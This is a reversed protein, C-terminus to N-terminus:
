VVDLPLDAGNPRQCASPTWPFVFEYTICIQMQCLSPERLLAPIHWVTLFTERSGFSVHSLVLTAPVTVVSRKSLNVGCWNLQHMWTHDDTRQQEKLYITSWPPLGQHTVRNRRSLFLIQFHLIHFACKGLQFFVVFIYIYLHILQLIIIVGGLSWSDM